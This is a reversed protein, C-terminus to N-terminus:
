VIKARKLRKPLLGVEADLKKMKAGYPSVLLAQKKVLSCKVWITRYLRCLRSTSALFLM